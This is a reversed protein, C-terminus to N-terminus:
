NLRTPNTPTIVRMALLRCGSGVQSPWCFLNSDTLKHSESCQLHKGDISYISLLRNSACCLCQRINANYECNTTSRKRESHLISNTRISFITTYFQDFEIDVQKEVNAIQICLGTQLTNRKNDYGYVRTSRCNTRSYLVTYPWCIGRRVLQSQKESCVSLRTPAPLISTNEKADLAYQMVEGLNSKSLPM